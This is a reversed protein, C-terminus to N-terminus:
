SPITTNDFQYISYGRTRAKLEMLGYEGNSTIFPKLIKDVGFSMWDNTHKAILHIKKNNSKAEEIIEKSLKKYGAKIMEEELKRAKEIDIQQQSLYVETKLYDILNSDINEHELIFGVISDNYPYSGNKRYELNYQMVEELSDSDYNIEKREWKAQREKLKENLNKM